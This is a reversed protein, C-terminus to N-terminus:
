AAKATREARIEGDLLPKAFFYGQAWDVGLDCLVQASEANEVCEAVTNVNLSRATNAIAGILQRVRRDAVIRKVMWGEIKLFHVPLEALYLFSSAGSGFDDVAVRFGADILPRLNRKMMAIEGPQRESIEAVLQSKCKGLAGVKAVLDQVHDLDSLFQSSLNIFRAQNGDTMPRALALASVREDVQSVLHMSEAAGIFQEAAVVGGERTVIRALAEEAVIEGTRLDVIPQYAAVVRHEDLACQVQPGDWLGKGRREGAGTCMVRDRGARKADYLLSDAQALLTMLSDVQGQYLSVGMSITIPLEGQPSKLPRSRVLKRAREGAIFAGKADLDHYCILFEEGGWRAIWDGGRMNDALTKAVHALALDGVHHGYQDNVLKFRDIDAIAVAFGGSERRARNWEIALRAEAARRNPLGTLFDEMALRTIEEEQAKRETIDRQIAVWHSVEGEIGNVPVVSLDVWYAKGNKRYNLIEAHAARGSGIAERLTARTAQNTAAGQLFHPSRGLVDAEKYGTIKEFAPNVYVIRQFADTIMVVQDSAEIATSLLKRQQADHVARTSDVVLFDLLEPANPPSAYAVLDLIRYDGDAKPVRLDVRHPRGAIASTALRDFAAEGILQRADAHRVEARKRGFLTAFGADCEIITNDSIRVACRSVHAADLLDREYRESLTQQRARLALALERMTSAVLLELLEGSLQFARELERKSTRENGRKSSEITEEIASNLTSNLEGVRKWAASLEEDQFSKALQGGEGSYWTAFNPDSEPIVHGNSLSHITDRLREQHRRVGLLLPPFATKYSDM